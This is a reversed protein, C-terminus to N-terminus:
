VHARGIQGTKLTWSASEIPSKYTGGGSIEISNKHDILELELRGGESPVIRYVARERLTGTVKEKLFADTTNMTSDAVCTTNITLTVIDDNEKSHAPSCFAFSAFFLLSM